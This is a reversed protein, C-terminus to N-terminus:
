RREMVLPSFESAMMPRINTAAEILLRSLRRCGEALDPALTDLTSEDGLAASLAQQVQSKFEIGGQYIDASSVRGGWRVPPLNGNSATRLITEGFMMEITVAHGNVNAKSAGEPGITPYAAAYPVNPLVRVSFHAPLKSRQLTLAAQNGAADNDLIAVVRNVVGAAALARTLKVVQDVGGAASTSGFDLFEFQHAVAPDALHLARSLFKADTSGETVVIVPGSSGVRSALRARATVHPHDDPDLWGGMVCGSLDLKVTTTARSGRLLLAIAFRPDDFSEVLDEWVSELYRYQADRDFPRLYLEAAWRTVAGLLSKATPFWLREQESFRFAQEPDSMEDELYSLAATYVRDSNFGQLALRARIRQVTSVYLFVDDVRPRADVDVEDADSGDDDDDPEIKVTLESETFLLAVADPIYNKGAYLTRHGATLM